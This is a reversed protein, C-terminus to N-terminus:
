TQQREATDIGGACFPGPNHSESGSAFREAAFGVAITVVLFTIFTGLAWGDLALTGGM